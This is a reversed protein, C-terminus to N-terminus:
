ISVIFKGEYAITAQIFTQDAKEKLALKMIILNAKSRQPHSLFEVCQDKNFYISAHM